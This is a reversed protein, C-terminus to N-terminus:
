FPPERGVIRPAFGRLELRMCRRYVRYLPAHKGGLGADERSSFSSRHTSSRWSSRQAGRWSLAVEHRLLSMM